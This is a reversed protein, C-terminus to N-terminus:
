ALLSSCEEHCSAQGPFLRPASVQTGVSFLGCLRILLLCHASYSCWLHLRANRQLTLPKLLKLFCDLSIATSLRLIYPSFNLHFNLSERSSVAFLVLAMLILLIHARQLSTIISLVHFSSLVSLKFIPLRTPASPPPCFWLFQTRINPATSHSSELHHSLKPLM